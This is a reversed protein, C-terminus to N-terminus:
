RFEEQWIRGPAENLNNFNYANVTVSSQRINIVGSAHTITLDFTTPVASTPTASFTLRFEGDGTLYLQDAVSPATFVAPDSAVPSQTWTEVSMTADVDVLSYSDNWTWGPPIDIAISTIPSCGQNNVNWTIEANTSSANTEDVTITYGAVTV